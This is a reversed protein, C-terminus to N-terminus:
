SRVLIVGLKEFMEETSYKHARNFRGLTLPLTEGKKVEPVKENCTFLVKFGLSNLVNGSEKCLAGFPFAFATPKIGIEKEIQENLGGIDKYLAQEYTTKDEGPKIRIGIRGGKVSEHMDYSHNGVEVFGSQQMERLENWSLHSYNIHKPEKEDSFLDTHKGLVAVIATMEYKKLLPFAYKYVSEFADDFTIMIPKKPLPTGDSVFKLLEATTVTQYGCAKIYQLDEELQAPSIVYDGWKSSTELIHHYMLVPLRRSSGEENNASDAVVIDVPNTAANTATKTMMGFISVAVICVLFVAVVMKLNIKIVM